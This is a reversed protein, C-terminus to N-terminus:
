EQLQCILIWLDIAQVDPLGDPNDDIQVKFSGDNMVANFYM